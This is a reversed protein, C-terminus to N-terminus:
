ERPLLASEGACLTIEQNGRLVKLTGEVCLLARRRQMFMSRLSTGPRGKCRSRASNGPPTLLTPMSLSFAEGLFSDDRRRYDNSKNEFSLLASGM